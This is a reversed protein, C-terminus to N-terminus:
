PDKDHGRSFRFNVASTDELFKWTKFGYEEIIKGDVNAEGFDNVIIARRKNLKTSLTEGLLIIMTTKGSGLFGAM